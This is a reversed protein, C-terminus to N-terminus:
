LQPVCYIDETSVSTHSYGLSELLKFMTQQPIGCQKLNFYVHAMLIKPKCRSIIELGGKIVFYEWGEVDIKIFDIHDIQNQQCFHDITDLEIEYTSWTGFRSPTEGLTSFGTINSTPAQKPDNLKNDLYLDSAVTWAKSGM